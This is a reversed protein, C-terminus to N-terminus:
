EIEPVADIHGVDQVQTMTDCRLVMVCLNCSIRATPLSQFEDGPVVPPWLHRLIDSLICPCTVGAEPCLDSIATPSSLKVWEGYWLTVPINDTHVENSLEWICMSMIHDHIHHSHPFSSM